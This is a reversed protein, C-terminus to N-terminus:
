GERKAQSCKGETTVIEPPIVPICFTGLKEGIKVVLYEHIANRYLSLILCEGKEEEFLFQSDGGSFLTFYKQFYKSFGKWKVLASPSQTTLYNRCGQTLLYSAPSDSCSVLKKWYSTNLSRMTSRISAFM